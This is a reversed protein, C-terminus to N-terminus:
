DSHNSKRFAIDEPVVLTIETGFVASSAMTFKAGIRVARERMGQLGFHGDKGDALTLPDLGKGNDKVRVMFDHKYRLEVEIRTAGSHRCANQIAEYGIHYVEDRVIPHMDRSDGIKSFVPSISGRIRRTEIAQRFAEALDNKEAASSRLSNLAARGENMAQELWLSLQEVSRRMCDPDGPQELADDAVMKSGQITQLLTDHLERAIRTREALREDFRANIASAIQRVRLRYLTWVVLAGSVVCLFMFWNTQRWGPAISFEMAAGAENWVGDSNCAVVRFRYNGPGLDNYFAQRRVGSEQWDHDHGELKYRFYVRRPASLSLATYNIELEGQLPPLTPSGQTNYRKHDAILEEIHIPTPIMNTHSRSPDIVQVETGNTFWLRGDPAKSVRPQKVEGNAPFAGDLANFVRPSIKSNPFKRWMAADMASIKLLGCKAYLWHSGHNDEIASFVSSCPLGNEKSMLSLAGDKWRYLGVSTAAWLSNEGDVSLSYITPSVDGNKLSVVEMQGNRHRAVKESTSAIWIGAQRDAALYGAFRFSADLAIEEQVIQDKIRLLRRGEKGSIIVWINADVDEVIARVAGLRGLSGAKSKRVESFRGQEYIVLKNDVGLWIRGAQDELMAGITQGPLGKLAKVASRGGDPLVDVAGENGVWVSGNSLALVSHINAGSLGQNSSFSLVPTDRFFDVGGNTVVWLNGERDEYISSVSNGSLGNAAEYHDAVDGRIHYIGQSETGVWLSHHRDIFLTHSQVAAGNFGPVVYSTWQGNSLRRVGLKLGIGDLAAWVEGSPAVAVDIAGNGGSHKLEEELYKHFSGPSWRCLADSGFWFNGQKDKALGLGYSATIGDAKGYCKLDKGAVRCLPGGGDKILYRTIWITGELDEIIVGIGSSGSQGAYNFLQGDKLHSLGSTTGIWLSGDRSGLLYSIGSGPLFQGEPPTWPTFRVGDFRALGNRGGIWIYGDTTQTITVGEVYGDQIRWATHGYQSILRHPDLALAPTGWVLLFLACFARSISIGETQSTPKTDMRTIDLPSLLIIMLWLPAGVLLSILLM